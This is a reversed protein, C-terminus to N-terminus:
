ANLPVRATITTGYGPASEVVLRGGLTRAREGMGLLGHGGDRMAQRQGRRADRAGGLGRGDDRITLAVNRGRKGLKVEVQRAHAHKRVNTLAEQAIRFLEAETRLPLALRPDTQLRVPVGTDSTFARGLTALAESLPRGALPGSERLDTVSGRAEELNERALELARQLKDRAQEPQSDLRNLASEIHLAIGALGQALTDHIERAIRTREEARALRASENALRAREVAIGVQLAITDLLRLDDPGPMRREPGTLNMIGLRKAQFSLPISAHYRLGSAEAAHRRFAPRLRSCEYVDVNRATLEGARFQEICLCWRRGAMRVPEQLYPPLAREAAKYFQGSDPDLLWVWGTRLGLREAVLGLTHELAARLDTLSLAEAVANVIELEPAPARREAM